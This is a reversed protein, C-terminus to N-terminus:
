QEIMLRLQEMTHFLRVYENESITWGQRQTLVAVVRETIAKSDWDYAHRLRRAGFIFARFWKAHNTKWDDVFDFLTDNMRDHFDQETYKELCETLWPICFELLINNVVKRVFLDLPHSDKKVAEGLYKALDKDDDSM